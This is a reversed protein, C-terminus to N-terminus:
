GTSPASEESKTYDKKIAGSLHKGENCAKCVGLDEYTYIACKCSKCTCIAPFTKM